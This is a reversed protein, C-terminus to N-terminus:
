NQNIKVAYYYDTSAGQQDGILSKARSRNIYATALNPALEIARDYDAIAGRTDGSKAKATGRNHYAEVFDPKHNIARDYDAIAKAREGLRLEVNGRNYYTIAYRSDTNNHPTMIVECIWTQSINIQQIFKGSHLYLFSLTNTTILSAQYLM